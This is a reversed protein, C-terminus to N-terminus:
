SRQVHYITNSDFKISSSKGNRNSTITDPHANYHLDDKPGVKMEQEIGKFLFCGSHRVYDIANSQFEIPSSKGSHNSMITDLYSMSKSLSTGVSSLRSMVDNSFSTFTCKLSNHEAEFRTVITDAHEKIDTVFPNDETSTATARDHELM